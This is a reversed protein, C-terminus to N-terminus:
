GLLVRRLFGPAEVPTGDWRKKASKVLAQWEGKAFGRMKDEVLTM